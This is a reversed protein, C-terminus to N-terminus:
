RERSCRLPPQLLHIRGRRPWRPHDDVADRLEDAGRNDYASQADRKLDLTTDPVCNADISMITDDKVRPAVVDNFFAPRNTYTVPAYVSALSVQTGDIEADVTVVRGDDSRTISNTIRQLAQDRTEKPKQVSDIPIIIAAGGKGETAPRHAQIYLLGFKTRARTVLDEQELRGRTIHHEQLMVALIPDRRHQQEINYMAEDFGETTSIGDVNKGIIRM